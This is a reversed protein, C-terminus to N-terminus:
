NNKKNRKYVEDIKVKVEAYSILTWGNEKIKAPPIKDIAKHLEKLDNDNMKQERMNEMVTNKIQNNLEEIIKLKYLVSKDDQYTRVMTIAEFIIKFDQEQKM